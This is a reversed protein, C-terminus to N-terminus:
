FSDEESRIGYMERYLLATEGNKIHFKKQPIIDHFHFTMICKILAASASVIQIELLSM